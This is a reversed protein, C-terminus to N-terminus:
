CAFAWVLEWFASIVASLCSECGVRARRLQRVRTLFSDSRNAKVAKYCKVSAGSIVAGCNSNIWSRLLLIREEIRRNNVFQKSAQLWVVNGKIGSYHKHFYYGLSRRHLILRIRWIHQVAQVDNLSRNKDKAPFSLPLEGGRFRIPRIPSIMLSASTFCSALWEPYTMHYAYLSAQNHQSYREVDICWHDTRTELHETAPPTRPSPRLNGEWQDRM